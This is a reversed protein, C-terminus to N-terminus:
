PWSNRESEIRQPKIKDKGKNQPITIYSLSNSVFFIYNLGLIFNFWLM